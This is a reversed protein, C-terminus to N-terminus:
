PWTEHMKKDFTHLNRKDNDDNNKKEGHFRAMRAMSIQLVSM